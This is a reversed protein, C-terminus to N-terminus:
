HPHHFHHQRRREVHRLQRRYQVGHRCRRDFPETNTIKSLAGTVNLAQAVTLTLTGDDTLTISAIRTDANLADFNAAVNAATDSIAFGPLADLSSQNTLFQAVSYTDIIVVSYSANTIKSLATTDSAPKPQRLIYFRIAM